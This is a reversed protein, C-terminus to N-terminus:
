SEEMAPSHALEPRGTLIALAAEVAYCGWNSVGCPLLVDTPMEACIQDGYPIHAAVADRVAGMGIENGGDGIGITPIKRAHAESVLHDFRSRGATFDMAVMNRYTGDATLGAREVSMVVKPQFRDILNKADVRAQADDDSCGEMVAVPTFRPVETAAKAEAATVVTPGALQVMAATKDILSPDTLIVPIANFGYSITRALTAVGIPGDNEGIKNSVWARTLSGTIIFVHDGQGLTQLHEAATVCLAKKARARAPAYLEGVGRGGIDLNAIRDILDFM